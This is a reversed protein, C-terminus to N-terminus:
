GIIVMGEVGEKRLKEIGEDVRDEFEGTKKNYYHFPCEKNSSGLMTGGKTEISRVIEEDLKIYIGEVFGIYGDMVGLVEIGQTNATMVISKIASNLGACDGGATMIAIKKM